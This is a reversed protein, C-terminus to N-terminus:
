LLVTIAEHECAPAFHLQHTILGEPSPHPPTPPYPPPPTRESQAQRTQPDQAPCSTSYKLGSGSPSKISAPTFPVSCAATYLRCRWMELVRLGSVNCCLRRPETM